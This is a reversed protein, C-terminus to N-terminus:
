KVLEGRSTERVKQAVDFLKRESEALTYGTHIVDYMRDGYDHLRQRDALAEAVVSLIQSDSMRDDIHVYNGSFIRNRQENM